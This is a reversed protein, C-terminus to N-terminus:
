LVAFEIRRNKRRGEATENNALPKNSGLGETSLREALINKTILYDKVANARQQSLLLNKSADGSSDTHGIIKVKKGGVKHLAAAMENLIQQGSATLISSGSEFEIIRNKLAEDIIKQEAQNVTLQSKFRYPQQVISQFQNITLQIDNPNSMKGTLEVQTGQVKLNGQKVKKLDPTIVQTVANSWGNPASVARVQIKDIVQDVGYVIQMKQLIEQKSAENPAVGEVVIPEACVLSSVLPITFFLWKKINQPVNKKM